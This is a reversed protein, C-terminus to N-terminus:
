NEAIEWILDFFTEITEYLTTSEIVLGYVQKHFDIIAVNKEGFLIIEAQLKFPHSKVVKTTRNSKHDLERYKETYKGTSILVRSQVNKKIKAQIFQNKLFQKLTEPITTLNVFAKQIKTNQLTEEYLNKISETGEFIRIKPKIFSHKTIKELENIFTLATKRRIKLEEIEDDIKDTFVEPSIATYARVDNIKTQIIIGKKLLRKISSYVTTRDIETRASVSSAFSQGHKYIDLYIKSDTQNFGQNELFTEIVQM